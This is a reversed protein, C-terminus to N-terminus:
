TEAEISLQCINVIGEVLADEAAAAKHLSIAVCFDGASPATVKATAGVTTVLGVAAALGGAAVKLCCREGHVAVCVQTPDAEDVSDIIGFPQTTPDTWLAVTNAASQYVAKGVNESFDSGAARTVPM